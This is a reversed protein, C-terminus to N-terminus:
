TGAEVDLTEAPATVDDLCSQTDLIIPLANRNRVLVPKCVQLLGASIGALDSPRAHHEILRAIEEVADLNAPGDEGLFHEAIARAARKVGPLGTTKNNAKM